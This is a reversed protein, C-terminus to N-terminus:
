HPPGPPGAEGGLLALRATVRKGVPELRVDLRRALATVIELGHRGVRDPDAPRPTPLVPSSDWVTVAVADGSLRLDLLAPGPAHKLANTVLESVVLRTADLARAAVPLGCDTRLRTLFVGATRRAEAICAPDASLPLTIHPVPAGPGVQKRGGTAAEM